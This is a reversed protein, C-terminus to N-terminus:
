ITNLKKIKLITLNTGKEEDILLTDQIFNDIKPNAKM